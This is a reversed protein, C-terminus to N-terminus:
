RCRNAQIEFRVLEEEIPRPRVTLLFDKLISLRDDYGMEAIERILVTAQIRYPLALTMHKVLYEKYPDLKSSRPQYGKRELLDHWNLYKSITKRNVGSM